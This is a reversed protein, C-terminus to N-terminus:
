AMATPSSRCRSTAPGLCSGSWSCRPTALHPTPRQARGNTPTSLTASGSWGAYGEAGGGASAKILLPFGLREAQVLADDAGEVPGGSWPVVAIGAEEALRKSSIKDGLRRMVDAPPGVFVVGLRDCLEAFEPHEAVFGWGVWAADARASVIAQELAGYDLYRSQQLGDPDTFMAPGLLVAEDAERVFLADRDPETYLAITRIDRGVEQRYERVAHILRM